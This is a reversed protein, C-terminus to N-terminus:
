SNQRSDIVQPKKKDGLRGWFQEKMVLPKYLNAPLAEILSIAKEKKDNQLLYAIQLEKIRFTHPSNPYDTLFAEAQQWFENERHLIWLCRLKLRHFTEANQCSICTQLGANCLSLALECKQMWDPENQNESSSFLFDDLIEKIQRVYQETDAIRNSNDAAFATLFCFFLICVVRKM